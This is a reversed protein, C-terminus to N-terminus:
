KHIMDYRVSHIYCYVAELPGNYDSNSASADIFSSAASGTLGLCDFRGLCLFHHHYKEQYIQKQIWALPHFLIQQLTFLSLSLSSSSASVEGGIEIELRLFFTLIDLVTCISLFDQLSLCPPLAVEPALTETPLAVDTVSVEWAEDNLLLNNRLDARDKNSNSNHGRNM